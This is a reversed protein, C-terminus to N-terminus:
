ELAQQATTKSPSTQSQKSPHPSIGTFSVSQRKTKSRKLNPNFDKLKQPNRATLNLTKPDILDTIREVV